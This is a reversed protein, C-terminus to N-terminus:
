KKRKKKTAAKKIKNKTVKVIVNNDRRGPTVPPLPLAVSM